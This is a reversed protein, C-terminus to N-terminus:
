RRSAPESIRKITRAVNGRNTELGTMWKYVKAANTPSKNALLWSKYVLARYAAINATVQYVTESRKAERDQKAQGRKQTSTLFSLASLQGATTPYPSKGIFHICGIQQFRSLKLEYRTKKATTQKREGIGLALSIDFGNTFISQWRQNTAEHKPFTVSLWYLDIIPADEALAESQGGAKYAGEIGQWRPAIGYNSLAKSISFVALRFNNLNTISQAKILKSRLQEISLDKLKSDITETKSQGDNSLFVESASPITLAPKVYFKAM